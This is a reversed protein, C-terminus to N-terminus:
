VSTPASRFAPGPQIGSPLGPPPLVLREGALLWRLPEAVRGISEEDPRVAVIFYHVEGFDRDASVVLNDLGRAVLWERLAADDDGPMAEAPLAALLDRKTIVFALRQRRTDVGYGRLRTVTAQYSAEPEDQAANARAFIEPFGGAFRDHLERVSFPDLVFILTRAHDLYSLRGSIDADALAEGAADFLHLMAQRRGNRLLLSLAVPMASVSTKPASGGSHFIQSHGHYVSETYADVVTLSVPAKGGPTVLGVLSGMILHTKGASAAGFVPIRVDTYRAAGRPLAEGCMPCHARLRLSARLVTTPLVKGCGCRRWLVGLRGPRLDRHLHEGAQVSARTHRGPCRYAPLRSIEYCRPCSGGARFVLQWVRDLGRLAGVVVLGAAWLVATVVGVALLAVTLGAVVGASFGTLAAVVPLLLPWFFLVVKTGAQDAAAAARKWCAAVAGWAQACIAHLDLRVQAVFYQPWAADPRVPRSGGGAVVEAPTRITGGRGGWVMAAVVLAAGFGAVLGGGLGILAGPVGLYVLAVLCVTIYLGIAVLSLVFVIVAPM